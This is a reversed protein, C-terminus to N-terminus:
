WIDWYTALEDVEIYPDVFLGAKDAFREAPTRGDADPCQYGDPEFAWWHQTWGTEPDPQSGHNVEGDYDRVSYRLGKDDPGDAISSDKVRAQWRVRCLWGPVDIYFAQKTDQFSWRQDMGFVANTISLAPIDKVEYARYFPTIPNEVDDTDIKNINADQFSFLQEYPWTSGGDDSLQALLQAEAILSGKWYIQITDAKIVIDAQGDFV